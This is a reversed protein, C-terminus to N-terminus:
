VGISLVELKLFVSGVPHPSVSPGSVILPAASTRFGPSEYSFAPLVEVMRVYISYPIYLSSILTREFIM